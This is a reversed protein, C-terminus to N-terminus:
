HVADDSTVPRHPAPTSRPAEPQVQEATFLTVGMIFHVTARETQGTGADLMGTLFTKSSYNFLHLVVHIIVNSERM